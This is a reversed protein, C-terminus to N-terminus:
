LDNIIPEILFDPVSSAKLWLDLDASKELSSFHEKFQKREINRGVELRNLREGVFEVIHGIWLLNTAPHFSKWENGTIEWMREFVSGVIPLTMVAHDSSFDHFACCCDKEIRACRLNVISVRVGFTKLVIQQDESTISESGDDDILINRAHLDRHEFKLKIEAWRFIFIIQYIISFAQAVSTFWYDSLPVGAYATVTLLYQQHVPPIYGSEKFLRHKESFRSRLSKLVEPYVGEVVRIDYICPFGSFDEFGSISDCNSLEKIIMVYSIVDHIKFVSEDHPPSVDVPVIKLVIRKEDFMIEYVDSSAGFAIMKAKQFYGYLPHEQFSEIKEQGCIHLLEYLM